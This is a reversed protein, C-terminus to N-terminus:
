IEFNVRRTQAGVIELAAVLIVDREKDWNAADTPFTTGGDTSMQMLLMLPGDAAADDTVVEFTGHLGAWLNTSNDIDGLIKTGTHGWLSNISQSVESGFTILNTDRDRKWPQYFVTATDGNDYDISVGCQNWLIWSWTQPLM